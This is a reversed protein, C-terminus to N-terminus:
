TNISRKRINVLLKISFYLNLIPITLCFIISFLLNSLGWWLFILGMLGMAYLSYLLLLISLVLVVKRNKILLLFAVIILILGISVFLMDDTDKLKVRDFEWYLRVGNLLLLLGQILWWIFSIYVINKNLWKM